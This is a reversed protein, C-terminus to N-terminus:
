KGLKVGLISEILKVRLDIDELTLKQHITSKENSSNLVSGQLDIARNKNENKNENEDNENCRHIRGDLEYPYWKNLRQSMIIEHGCFTCQKRYSM